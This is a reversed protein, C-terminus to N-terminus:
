IIGPVITSWEAEFQYLVSSSKLSVVLYVFNAQVTFDGGLGHTQNINITRLSSNHAKILRQVQCIFGTQIQCFDSRVGIRRYNFDKIPAFVAVLLALLEGLAALGLLLNFHLLYSESQLNTLVIQLNLEGSDFLEEFL